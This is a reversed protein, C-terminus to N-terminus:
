ATPHVALGGQVPVVVGSSGLLTVDARGLGLNVSGVVLVRGGGGPAHPARDRPVRMTPFVM